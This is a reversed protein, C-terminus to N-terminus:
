SIQRLGGAANQQGASRGAPDIRREEGRDFGHGARTIRRPRRHALATVLKQHAAPNKIPAKYSLRSSKLSRHKPVESIQDPAAAPEPRPAPYPFVAPGDPRRLDLRRCRGRLAFFVFSPQGRGPLRGPIGSVRPLFRFLLPLERCAAWPTFKASSTRITQGGVSKATTALSAQRPM